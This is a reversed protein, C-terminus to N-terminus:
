WPIPCDACRGPENPAALIRELEAAGLHTPQYVVGRRRLNRVFARLHNESGRRLAEFTSRVDQAQTSALRKTLDVIDIEEIEAGVRLADVVSRSGRAVLDAYLRALEASDFEGRPRCCAPDELGHRELLSKIAGTHRSESEAIREFVGLRLRGDLEQYVDRALKEEERVYALSAREAASLEGPAVAAPPAAAAQASATPAAPPSAGPGAMSRGATAPAPTSPDPGKGDQVSTCGAIWAVALLGARVPRAKSAGNCWNCRFFSLNM